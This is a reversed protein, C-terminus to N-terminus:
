RLLHCTTCLNTVVKSITPTACECRQLARGAKTAHPLPRPHFKRVILEAPTPHDPMRAGRALLEDVFWVPLRVTKTPEGKPV